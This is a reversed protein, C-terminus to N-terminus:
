PPTTFFEIRKAKFLGVALTRGDPLFALERPFGSVPETVVKVSAVHSDGTGILGALEMGGGGDKGSAFRDSLAVWVQRGDSRVAVGIPSTGVHFSAMDVNESKTGLSTTAIGLVTGDGRATVWLWAGNPSIAVRVPNCGAQVAGVVSDSPNTAAKAVDVRLLVGHSHRREQSTEPKCPATLGWRPPATESTSYLWRGDPSLALGVPAIATPIEGILPNGKFEMARWKALDYVSIRQDLENSVFLLHDDVSAIAYVAGADHGVRLRGKLADGSAQELAPVSLVEVRNGETVALLDGDHTLAEGAGAQRLGVVRYVSFVGKTDHLVAVTGHDHGDSTAVFMWCGDGSVQIGFPQAQLDVVSANAPPPCVSARARVSFLVCLVIGLLGVVFKM